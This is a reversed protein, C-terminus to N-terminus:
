RQRKVENKLMQDPADLRTVATPQFFKSENVFLAPLVEVTLPPPTFIISTNVFFSPYARVLTIVTGSSDSTLDRDFWSALTMGGDDAWGTLKYQPEYVFYSM